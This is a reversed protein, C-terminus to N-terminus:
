PYNSLWSREKVGCNLKKVKWVWQWCYVKIVQSSFNFYHFKLWVPMLSHRSPLVSHLYIFFNNQASFITHVYSLVTNELRQLSVLILGWQNSHFIGMASSHSFVNSHCIHDLSHLVIFIHNLHKAAVSSKNKLFLHVLVFPLLCLNSALISTIFDSFFNLYFNSTSRCSVIIYM